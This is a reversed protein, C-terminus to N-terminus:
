EKEIANFFNEQYEHYKFDVQLTTKLEEWRTVHDHWNLWTKAAATLFKKTALLIELPTWQCNAIIEIM